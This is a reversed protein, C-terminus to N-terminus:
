LEYVYFLFLHIEWFIKAANHHAKKPMPEKRAHDLGIYHKGEIRETIVIPLNNLILIYGERGEVPNPLPVEPMSNLLDVLNRVEEQGKQRFATLVYHDGIMLTINILGRMNQIINSVPRLGYFNELRQIAEEDLDFRRQLVSKLKM